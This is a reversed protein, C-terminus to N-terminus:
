HRNTDHVPQNMTSEIRRGDIRLLGIEHLLTSMRWHCYDGHFYQSDDLPSDDKQTVYWIGRATKAKNWPEITSQSKSIKQWHKDLYRSVTGPTTRTLNDSTICFHLHFRKGGRRGEQNLFWAIGDLDRKGTYRRALDRMLLHFRKVREREDWQCDDKFSLDGKVMWNPIRDLSKYIEDHKHQYRLDRKEVANENM